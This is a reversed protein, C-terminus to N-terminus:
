KKGWGCARCASGVLPEGCEPCTKSLELERAGVADAVWNLIARYDSKYRKGNAGKYNDLKEISKQTADAGYRGVLKTHEDETMHVNDAFRKKPATEKKRTKDSNRIEEKKMSYSSSSSHRNLPPKSPNRIARFPKGSDLWERIDDPITELIADAGKRMNINYKQHKQFNKIALWGNRYLMKGDAQLDDMMTRIKTEDLGTHFTMHQMTIEYVGALNTLPNTLLYLFLLKHEADLELIYPDDWFKTSIARQNAM